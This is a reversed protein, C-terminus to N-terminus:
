EIELPPDARHIMAHCNPCVPIFDLGPLISSFVFWPDYLCRERGHLNSVANRYRECRRVKAGECRRVKPVKAGEGGSAARMTSFHHKQADRSCERRNLCSVRTSDPGRHRSGEGMRRDEGRSPRTKPRQYFGPRLRCDHDL